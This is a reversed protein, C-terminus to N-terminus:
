RQDAWIERVRDVYAQKDVVLIPVIRAQVLKKKLLYEVFLEYNKMKSDHWFVYYTRDTLRNSGIIPAEAGTFLKGQDILQGVNQENVQKGEHTFLVFRCQKGFVAESEQNQM